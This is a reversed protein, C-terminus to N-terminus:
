RRRWSTTRTLFILTVKVVGVRECPGCNLRQFSKFSRILKTLAGGPCQRLYTHRTEGSVENLCLLPQVVVVDEHPVGEPTVQLHHSFDDETGDYALPKDVPYSM